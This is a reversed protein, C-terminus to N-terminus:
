PREFRRPENPRFNLVIQAVRNSNVIAVHRPWSSKYRRLKEDVPEVKLEELIDESGKYGCLTDRQGESLNCKWQHWDNNIRKCSTVFKEEM